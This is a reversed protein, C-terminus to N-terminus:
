FVAPVDDRGARLNAVRAMTFLLDSLRNLYRVHTGPGEEERYLAIVRREARRVVTRAGHLAAAAATGGPLVFQVLPPLEADYRDITAELRAVDEDTLHHQRKRNLTALDSGLAFLRHQVEGLMGDLDPDSLAARAVGLWANAEDVSGYAEVRLSDKAIRKEGAVGWLSTEGQDGTRTYIKVDL